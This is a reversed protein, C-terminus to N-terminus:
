VTGVMGILNSKGSIAKIEEAIKEEDSLSTETHSPEVDESKEEHVEEPDAAPVEVTEESVAEENTAANVNEIVEENVNEANEPAEFVGDKEEFVNMEQDLM